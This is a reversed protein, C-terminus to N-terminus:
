YVKPRVARISASEKREGLYKREIKERWIRATWFYLLRNLHTQRTGRPLCGASFFKEGGLTELFNLLETSTHIQQM